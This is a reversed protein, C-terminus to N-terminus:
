WVRFSPSLAVILSINFMIVTGAAAFRGAAETDSGGLAAAMVLWAGYGPRALAHDFGRVHGDGDDCTGDAGRRNIWRAGHASALGAGREVVKM